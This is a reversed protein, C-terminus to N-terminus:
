VSGFDTWKLKADKKKYESKFFVPISDVVRDDNEFNIVGNGTRETRVMFGQGSALYGNPIDGGSEAAIGGTKYNYIAYDGGVFDGGGSVPTNHSWLISRKKLITMKVTQYYLILLLHLLILIGLWILITMKQKVDPSGKYNVTLTLDGNNPKGKFSVQQVGTSIGEASYGRGPIMMRGGDAIFWHGYITGSYIPNIDAPNLYFIRNPDVGAFVDGVAENEVPSSWYTVDHINNLHLQNKM